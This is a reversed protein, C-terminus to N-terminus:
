PAGMADDVANQCAQRGGCDVTSPDSFWPPPSGGWPSSDDWEGAPAVVEGPYIAPDDEPGYDPPQMAPGM